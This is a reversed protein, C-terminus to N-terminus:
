RMKKELYMKISEFIKMGPGSKECDDFSHQEYYPLQRNWSAREPHPMIALVNGEKNTIGALNYVAGNPNIPYKEDINGDEDCYRFMIQNNKLLEKVLDENTTTFRGEGHAVPIQM